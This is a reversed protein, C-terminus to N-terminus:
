EGWVPNMLGTKRGEALASQRESGSINEYFWGEAAARKVREIFLEASMLTSLDDVSSTAELTHLYHDDVTKEAPVLSKVGVREPIFFEGDWLWDQLASIELEGWLVFSGFQKYNSADRYMYEILTNM